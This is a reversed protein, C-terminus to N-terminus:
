VYFTRYVYVPNIGADGEPLGNLLSYVMIRFSSGDLTEDAVATFVLDKVGPCTAGPGSVTCGDPLGVFRAHDSFLVVTVQTNVPDVTYGLPVIKFPVGPVILPAKFGIAQASFAVACLIFGAVWYRKM